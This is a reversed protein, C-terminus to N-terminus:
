LDLSELVGIEDLEYSVEAGIVHDVQLSHGRVVHSGLLGILARVFPGNDAYFSRKKATEPDQVTVTLISGSGQIDTIIGRAM